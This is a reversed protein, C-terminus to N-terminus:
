AMQPEAESSRSVSCGGEEERLSARDDLEEPRAVVLPAGAAVGEARGRQKDKKGDVHRERAPVPARISREAM